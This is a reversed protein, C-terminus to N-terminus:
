KYRDNAKRSINCTKCSYHANIYFLDNSALIFETFYKKGFLNTTEAYTANM